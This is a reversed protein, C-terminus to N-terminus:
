DSRIAVVVVFCSIAVDSTRDVDDFSQLLLTLAALLLEEGLMAVALALGLGIASWLRANSRFAHSLQSQEHCALRLGVIWVDQRCLCTSRSVM